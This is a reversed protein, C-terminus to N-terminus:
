VYEFELQPRLRISKVDKQFSCQSVLQVCISGLRILKVYKQFTNDYPKEHSSPRLRISKVDKQFWNM